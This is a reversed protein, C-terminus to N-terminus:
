VRLKPESSSLMGAALQALIVTAQIKAKQEEAETFRERNDKKKEEKKEKKISESMSKRAKEIVAPTIRSSDSDVEAQIEVSISKLDSSSFGETNKIFEEKCRGSCIKEMDIHNLKKLYEKFVSERQAADPNFIEITENRFRRKIRQDLLEPKNTAGIFFIRNDNQYKDLQTWFTTETQGYERTAGEDRDSGAIKDIEDIFIMAKQGKEDAHRVADEFLQKIKDSGSGVYKNVADSGVLEFLKSGTQEALKQVMMTKGNGSPGHLLMRNEFGRDEARTIGKDEQWQRIIKGIREDFTGIMGPIATTQPRKSKEEDSAKSNAVVAAGMGLLLAGISSISHAAHPTLLLLSLSLAVIKKSARAM